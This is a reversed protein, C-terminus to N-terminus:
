IIADNVIGDDSVKEVFRTIMDKKIWDLTMSVSIRFSTIHLDYLFEMLRPGIVNADFCHKKLDCSGTHPTISSIGSGARAGRSKCGPKIYHYILLLSRGCSGFPHSSLCARKHRSLDCHIWLFCM